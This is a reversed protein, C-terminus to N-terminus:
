TARTAVEKSAKPRKTLMRHERLQSTALRIPIMFDVKHHELSYPWSSRLFDACFRLSLNAYKSLVHFICTAGICSLSCSCLSFLSCAMYVLSRCFCPSKFSFVQSLLLRLLSNLVQPNLARSHSSIWSPITVLTPSTSFRSLSELSEARKKLSNIAECQLM